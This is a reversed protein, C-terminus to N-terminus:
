QAEDTEVVVLSVGRAGQNPHNKDVVLIFDANQRNSIFTQSGSIRYGDGDRRATTRISQLDSGAGPESMAIACVREGSVLKPLWRRKQEETGHLIVYPTVIVNHLSLAFGELNQRAVVDLLVLDHRFDAGPGGYAEPVTVGLFGARLDGIRARAGAVHHKTHVHRPRVM